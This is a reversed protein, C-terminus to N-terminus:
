CDQLNLKDLDNSRIDRLGDPICGSLPNGALWLFGLNPLDALESPIQGTLQNGFISLWVLSGLKGLEPPIEGSLKNGGLDLAWLNPLNGLESPISGTLQNSALKLRQMEGLNGLEKPIEGTLQNGALELSSLRDLKGLEPPMKGSLGNEALDLGVVSLNDVAAVGHWEELPKDSLWNENNTWNPGDTAAYLAILAERDPFGLDAGFYDGVEWGKYIKMLFSFIEPFDASLKQRTLEDDKRDWRRQIDNPRDFYSETFEAFFERNNTMGYAEPFLNDRRAKRYFGDWDTYENPKFCLNQVAHAFEHVVLSHNGRLLESEIVAGIPNRLEAGIGAVTDWPGSGFEPLTTILKGDPSIAMATRSRVLCRRIDEGLSRMMGGIVDATTYMSDAQVDGNAKVTIGEVTIFQEYYESPQTVVRFSDLTERRVRDLGRREWEHAEWKCLHHRVRFGQAVHPLTNGVAILEVVDLECYRPAEQVRYALHYFENDEIRRQEFATIEFLSASPWWDQRLNDRM